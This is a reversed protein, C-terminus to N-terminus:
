PLIKRSLVLADQAGAPRAYYGARHGIQQFGASRYLALAAPNDAAVELVLEAAGQEKAVGLAADLLRRGLGGRRRDPAVAIAAVDLGEGGPICLIFGAPDRGASALLGFAGPLSLLRAVSEGSWADTGPDAKGPGTEGPAALWRGHLAALLPAHAVGAKEIETQGAQKVMAASM